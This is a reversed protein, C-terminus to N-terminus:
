GGNARASARQEYIAVLERKVIKGTASTPLSELVLFESPWKYAALQDRLSLRLAEFDPPESGAPVVAAVVRQGWTEDAIGFVACERVVNSTGLVTEIEAPAINEGGRVIMDDGRGGFYIYGAEDGYGRDGTRLVRSGDPAAETVVSSLRPGSVVIEGEIGPPCPNGDLDLIEVSLNELPLGISGLRVIAGPDGERAAAHDAEDLICVTGGAETLGYVGVFGVHPPFAELAQRIISLRMPGGGYTINQLSSFDCALAAPSELVRQLMTPVLFAQTVRHREVSQAWTEPAFQELMTVRRGAFVARLLAVVGAVHYLPMSMLLNEDRTEPPCAPTTAMVYTALPGAELPIPKPTSSTGSTFLVIDGGSGSLGTAGAPSCLEEIPVIAGRWRGQSAEAAVDAYREGYVLTSVEGRDLIDELEHARLRYNLPVFRVGRYVCAYMLLAAHNSNVDLLAVGSGDLRGAIEIARAQVEAITATEDGCTLIPRDPDLLAPLSLLDFLPGPPEPESASM